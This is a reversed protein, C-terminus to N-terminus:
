IVLFIPETICQQLLTKLYIMAYIDEPKDDMIVRIAEKNM